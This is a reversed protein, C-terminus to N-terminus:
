ALFALGKFLVLVVQYQARQLVDVPFQFTWAARRFQKIKVRARQTRFHALESDLTWPIFGLGLRLLCFFCLNFRGATTNGVLTSERKQSLTLATVVTGCSLLVGKPM